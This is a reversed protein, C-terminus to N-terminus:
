SGRIFYWRHTANSHFLFLAPPVSESDGQVANSVLSGRWDSTRLINGQEDVFSSGIAVILGSAMMWQPKSMLRADPRSPNGLISIPRNGVQPTAPSSIWGSPLDIPTTAGQDLWLQILSRATGEGTLLPLNSLIVAQLTFPSLLAWFQAKTGYRQCAHFTTVFDAAGEFQQQTPTSKPEAVFRFAGLETSVFYTEKQTQVHDDLYRAPNKVASLVQEANLPDVDCVQAGQVVAPDVTAPTSQVVAALFNGPGDRGGDGNPIYRVFAMGLLMFLVLGVTMPISPGRTWWPGPNQGQPIHRTSTSVAQRRTRTSVPAIRTASMASEKRANVDNLVRSWLDHSPARSEGSQEHARHAFAHVQRAADIDEGAGNALDNRSAARNLAADLADGDHNPFPIM